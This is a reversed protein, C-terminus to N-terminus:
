GAFHHKLFKLVVENFADPREMNALHGVGPLCLYQAGAICEAMKKMVLPAANQDYEGAICLTPVRINVLNSVRNFSVIASLAARYSAEPVGAMLSAAADIATVGAQPAVMGPVLTRALGAMGVGADLPAFRSNLFQQQWEGGPKGFAATTGSLVLGHIKQAFLAVAEQAVMGGMSHGVLVNRAAGVHDILQELSHALAANTCPDLPPSEGYGPMDWAVAQFGADALPQLSDLWAAKGGGVGHLLFVATQGTGRRLCVPPNM